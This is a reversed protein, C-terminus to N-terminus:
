FIPSHRSVTNRRGDDMVEVNDVLHDESGDGRLCAIMEYQLIVQFDFKRNLATFVKKRNKLSSPLIVNGRAYVGESWEPRLLICRQLSPLRCAWDLCRELKGFEFAVEVISRFWPYKQEPLCNPAGTHIAFVRRYVLSYAEDRVKHCTLLIVYTCKKRLNLCTYKSYEYTAQPRPNHCIKLFGRTLHKYVNIRMEAPLTLFTFKPKPAHAVLAQSKPNTTSSMMSFSHFRTPLYIDNSPSIQKVTLLVASM